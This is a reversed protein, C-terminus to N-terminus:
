PFTHKVQNDHEHAWTFTLQQFSDLSRQKTELGGEGLLDEGNSSAIQKPLNEVVVNPCWNQEPFFPLFFFLILLFYGTVLLYDFLIEKEPCFFKPPISTHEHLKQWMLFKSVQRISHIYPLCILSVTSILRNASPGSPSTNRRKSSSVLFVFLLFIPTPFFIQSPSDMLNSVRQRQWLTQMAYCRENSDKGFALDFCRQIIHFYVTEITNGLIEWSIGPCWFFCHM